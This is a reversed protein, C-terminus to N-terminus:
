TRLPELLEIMYGDPDKVVAWLVGNAESVPVAVPTEHQVLHKLAAHADKVTITFRNYADGVNYPQSRTVNWMLMVSAGRSRPYDLVLEREDAGYGPFRARETMGLVGVYFRLSREIDAVRYSVMSVRPEFQSLGRVTDQVKLDHDTM